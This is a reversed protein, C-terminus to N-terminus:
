GMVSDNLANPLIISFRSGEGPISSLEIRGRHAKVVREAISLGLGLGGVQHTRAKDVKYFLKFINEHEEGKIGIGTDDVILYLAEGDSRASVTIHGEQTFHLANEVIARLARTLEIEDAYIPLVIDTSEFAVEVNKAAIRDALGIELNNLMSQVQFRGPNLHHTTTEWRYITLLSDVLEEVHNVQQKLRARREVRKESDTTRELLYLNTNMVSLSTRFDHSAAQIFDGVLTAKEREIALQTARQQALRDESINRVVCIVHDSDIPSFAAKLWYDGRQFQGMYEVDVTKHESLARTIATNVEDVLHDPLLDSTNRGVLQDTRLRNAFEGANILREVVGTRNVLLIMEPMAAFLARLETESERLRQETKKREQVEALAQNRMDSYDKIRQTVETVDQISFLAHCIESGPITVPTVTTHQVRLQDEKHRVPIIHHHLQSSFVVPPGGTFIGALRTTYRPQTLHPFHDGVATYLMDERTNGTWYEIQRNWFIIEYDRNIAFFGLPVDDLVMFLHESQQFQM